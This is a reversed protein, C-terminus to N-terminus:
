ACFILDADDINGLSAYPQQLATRIWSEVKCTSFPATLSKSEGSKFEFKDPDLNLPILGIRHALVEDQLLIGVKFFPRAPATNYLSKQPNLLEISWAQLETAKSIASMGMFCMLNQDLGPGESDCLKTRPKQM